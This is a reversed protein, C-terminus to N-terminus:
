LTVTRNKWAQFIKCPGRFPTKYNYAAKNRLMVQYGVGYDHGIRTFTKCIIYKEIHSQKSQNIYRWDAIHNMPLIMDQDFILQGPSKYKTSHCVSLVMFAVEALILM